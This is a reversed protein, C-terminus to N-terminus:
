WAVSRALRRREKRARPDVVLRLADVALQSAAVLATALLTVALLLRFDSELAAHYGILGLGQIGLVKELVLVGGVLYGMRTAALRSLPLLLHWLVRPLVPVGRLRASWVFDAARLRELEADLTVLADSLMGDGIALVLVAAVLQARGEPPVAFVVLALYGLLFVPLLSAAHLLARLVRGLRRARDGLLMAVLLSSALSLLLALGIIPLSRSAGRGVLELIPIGRWSPGLDWRLLGIWFHAIWSLFGASEATRAPSGPAFWLLLGFLLSSVLVVGVFSAARLLIPRLVAAM